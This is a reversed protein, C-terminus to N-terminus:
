VRALSKLRQLDPLTFGSWEMPLISNNHTLPEEALPYRSKAVSNEWLATGPVPSYEALSIRVGYKSAYRISEEVEQRTQDPLGALIYVTIQRSTFGASRLAEVGRGLMEVKLKEDMTSHFNPDASEFGVRVEQFGARKMLRATEEDVASLHLANPLYFHLHLGSESILELLPLFAKEKDCLLADDYFAFNKTGLRRRIETISRFVAHPDGPLFSGSLVGSACYECSFPCGRNLRMVAADTFVGPLIMSGDPPTEALSPLGLAQLIRNLEPFAEGRILHDPGVVRRCHEPCLTAYIGGVVLPVGPHTERILRTAEVVGPYWYTMGTSLLILAPRVGELRRRLSEEVIGYRFYRRSVGAVPQPKKAPQRFFKGTGDRKRRPMGLLTMSARDEYDLSNVLEVQYGADEFAKGIRLLAFPKIYLDYLAFDYVPPALLLVPPSDLSDHSKTSREADAM